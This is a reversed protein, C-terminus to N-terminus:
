QPDPCCISVRGGMIEPEMFCWGWQASGMGCGPPLVQCLGLAPLPYCQSPIIIVANGWAVAPAWLSIFSLLPNEDPCVIGLVGLPERLLLNTGYLPTDQPHLSCSPLCHSFPAAGVFGCFPGIGMMPLRAWMM